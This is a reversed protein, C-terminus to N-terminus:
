ESVTRTVCGCVWVWVWVCVWVCVPNVSDTAWLKRQSAEERGKLRASSIPSPM